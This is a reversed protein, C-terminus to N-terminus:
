QAKEGPPPFAAAVEILGLIARNFAPLDEAPIWYELHDQGGAEQVGYQDLFDRRVRFRTV